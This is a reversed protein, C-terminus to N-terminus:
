QVVVQDKIATVTESGILFRGEDDQRYKLRNRKQQTINDDPTVILNRLEGTSYDITVNHLEGIVSGDVDVVTKEALNKTFIEM